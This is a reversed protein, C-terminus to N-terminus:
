EEVELLEAIELTKAKELHAKINVAVDSGKKDSRWDIESLWKNLDELYKEWIACISDNYTEWDDPEYLDPLGPMDGTWWLSTHFPDPTDRMFQIATRLQERIIGLQQDTM